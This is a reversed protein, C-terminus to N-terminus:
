GLTTTQTPENLRYSHYDVWVFRKMLTVGEFKGRTLFHYSVTVSLSCLMDHGLTTHTYGLIPVVHIPGLKGQLQAIVVLSPADNKSIM